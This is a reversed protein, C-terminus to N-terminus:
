KAPAGVVLNQRNKEITAPGIGKVQALDDVSTFPGNAERYQIISAAKKDGIGVIATALTDADASNIDVPGAFTQATFLMLLSLLSTCLYRM